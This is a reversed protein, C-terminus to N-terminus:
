GEDDGHSLAAHRKIRYVLIGAMLALLPGQSESLLSEPPGHHHLIASSYHPSARVALCKLPFHWPSGETRNSRICHQLEHMEIVCADLGHHLQILGGHHLIDKQHSVMECPIGKGHYHLILCGLHNRLHEVLAEYCDESHGNLQQTIPPVICHAPPANGDSVIECSQCTIVHCSPEIPAVGVLARAPRCCCETLPSRNNAVSDSTQSADTGGQQNNNGSLSHKCASRDCALM